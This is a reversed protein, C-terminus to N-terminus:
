DYLAEQDAYFVAYRCFDQHQCFLCVDTKTKQYPNKGVDAATSYFDIDDKGDPTLLKGYETFAQERVDKNPFHVKLREDTFSMEGLESLETFDRDKFSDEIKLYDYVQRKEVKRMAPFLEIVQKYIEDVPLGKGKMVSYIAAILGNIAYNQHFENQFTPFRDVVYGFVYKMPCIAFDMKAEKATDQPMKMKDYPLTRRKGYISNQVQEYSIQKRKAPIVPVGAAESILKIYASPALIKDDMNSIWSLQVDKNKLASYLLYRNCIYASEMVHRLNIILPNRTREYCERIHKGTLPWIYQKKGGPMNNVDCLCIHVKGHSRVAAADISFIPAVMGLRDAQIEGDRFKGSMYLNLAGSIDGPYCEETFGSPDGLKAFLEKVLEREEEYLENSMEHQKLILDLKRIHERVHVKETNTFLEKAMNLLRKILCLIVERKETSVAFVSFNLFPNGMIEQWRATNEDFDWEKEFPQIVEENIEELLKIREEWESVTECDKFFPLLNMLDQIYEKGAQGDVALWGSAFCEILKEEDLIIEQRDEDWMKNLTSVFQGIPYSLLKREGYEDPYFDRLIENATNPNASYVFYGEEKVHKIEHVFEMVSAYERISVKNSVTAKRGEFIEGYPEPINGKEKKWESIDPYGNERSYSKRWIENAYPYREDYSFLMKITIGSKELLRVIREQLPTLYYFGHFVITQINSRGFLKNLVPNWANRNELEKMRNHFNNIAPDNQMLFKWASLLLEINRDGNACIDEPAIGAEELLIISSLLMNLNRRCGVLWHRVEPDDGQRHILGRIFQSLVITEHFKTEDDTWHPVALDALKRFEAAQVSQDNMFLGDVKDYKATGKMSKRLDATVTIQPFNKIENWFSTSGLTRLDTYTYIERSMM